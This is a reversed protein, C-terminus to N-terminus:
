KASIALLRQEVIKLGYTFDDQWGHWYHFNWKGSFPNSEGHTVQKAKEVNEFRTAIWPFSHKGQYYPLDVQWLDTHVSLTLIGATTILHYVPWPDSCPRRKAGVKVLMSEADREFQAREKKFKARM